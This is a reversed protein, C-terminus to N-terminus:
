ADAKRPSDSYAVRFLPEMYEDCAERHEDFFADIGDTTRNIAVIKGFESVEGKERLRLLFSEYRERFTDITENLRVRFVAHIKGTRGGQKFYVLNLDKVRDSDSVDIDLEEELEKSINGTLDFVGKKIDSSDIGGGSLQYIGARATHDGMKGFVTMGDATEVLCSTAIVKVGYGGMVPDVNQWYLYHAYDTKEVLLSHKGGSVEDETVTFVDGRVYEKGRSMLSDWYADVKRQWDDPLSFRRDGYRVIFTEKAPLIM